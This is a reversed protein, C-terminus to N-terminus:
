AGLSLKRVHQEIRPLLDLFGDHWTPTCTIANM